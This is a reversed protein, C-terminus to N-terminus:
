TLIMVSWCSFESSECNRTAYQGNEVILNGPEQPKGYLYNELISKAGEAYRPRADLTTGLCHLVIGNGGGLKNKMTMWPHDKPAPQVDWVDGAYGNIHGNALAEAIAARDVIAGRATNVIRSGKKFHKLLGANILGRTGEHMPADITVLDCQSVFAKIGEARRVGVAKAAEKPLPNYDFYLIEKCDFPKLRQLVRYWISYNFLLYIDVSRFHPLFRDAGTTCCGERLILRM